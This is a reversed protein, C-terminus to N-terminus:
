RGRTFLFGLAVAAVGTMLHAASHTVAAIYAGRRLLEFSELGFSSYTTFGGLVGVVVFARMETTVLGRSEGFGAFAGILLCGVINVSLTAVPVSAGATARGLATTVLYRLVAGLFGGLGVYLIAAVRAQLGNARYLWATRLM